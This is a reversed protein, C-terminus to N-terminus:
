MALDTEHLYLTVTRATTLFSTRKKKKKQHIKFFLYILFFFSMLSVSFYLLTHNPQIIPLDGHRTLSPIYFIQGWDAPHNKSVGSVEKWVRVDTTTTNQVGKALAEMQAPDGVETHVAINEVVNWAMPKEQTLSAPLYRCQMCCCSKSTGIQM